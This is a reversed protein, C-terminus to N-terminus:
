IDERLGTEAEKPRCAEAVVVAGAEVKSTEVAMTGTAEAEWIGTTELIETAAVLTEAMAELTETTEWTETEELTETAVLTETEVLTGEMTEKAVAMIEEEESTVAVEWKKMMLTAVAEEKDSTTAKGAM